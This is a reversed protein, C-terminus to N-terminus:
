GISLRATDSARSPGASIPRFLDLAPREILHWSLVAWTWAIPLALGMMEFPTIGPVTLALIQQVPWGVIYTGYSYDGLENYARLPSSVGGLWLAVYTIALSWLATVHITAALGVLLLAIMWHMQLRSRYHYAAMGLVFPFTLDAYFITIPLLRSKVLLYFLAYALLFSRFRSSRLLGCLGVLMLAAYCVVEYWLTWLSGNVEDGYPNDAFSMGSRQLLSIVLTLVALAPVIRSARALVFSLNSPRNNFSKLIFFGSLGFFAHVAIAGLGLPKDGWPEWTGPGNSLAFSHSVIVASAAIMRILNFNNDRGHALPQATRM